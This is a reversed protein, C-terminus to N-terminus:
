YPHAKTHAEKLGVEKPSESSGPSGPLRNGKGSQPLEENNKEFLNELKQEEEEGEPTGIIWINSYKFIDQINRFREENKQIRTEENQGAQINIKEKQELDNM